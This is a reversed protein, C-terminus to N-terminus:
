WESLNSTRCVILRHRGSRNVPPLRRQVSAPREGQSVPSRLRRSRPTIQELPRLMHRESPLSSLPGSSAAIKATRRERKDRTTGEKM